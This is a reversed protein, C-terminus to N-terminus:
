LVISALLLVASALAVVLAVVVLSEEVVSALVALAVASGAASIGKRRPRDGSWPAFSNVPVMM